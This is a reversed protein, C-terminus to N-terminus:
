ERGVVESGPKLSKMVEQVGAELQRDHGNLNDEPTNEVFIDPQVGLNELNTRADDALYVGVGPTRITSGDILSYSGTGIVAGMTPTGVVKGLGLARFGAPFMEANSASRWNQLVVKPGYYGAFPRTTPETGRPHWVQYPKQVLIALLEQEINGGGNWRQDIVLAEKHRYEALDKRFQALSPQDMAKIHLYGVRGHSLEDVKARRENVWRHYRLNSFASGAIPEYKATWSGSEEPKDNLTLEVKRNLRRGLFATVNDGVKVPKGDIALLYNGSAVKLWDKDAPGEEYVHTIKYRGSAEDAALDLGLHRTPAGSNERSGPAAAAGTHSANLEGIMENLLNILEPRDGVYAVMPKYKARMADWDKGHMAQDYFRYKMTRWADDFMEGWEAPKNIELTINFTVKKRSGGGGGTESGSPTPTSAAGGRGGGGAMAARLGAMGGGAGGGGGGLSVSTSYVGDGEQYFLTRGDKTLTLGSFGGGGGGGGGRRGRPPAEEESTSPAPTGAVLRNMRKGDDGITYIASSGGGGGAGRGGGGGFGGGGETGVFILNKGDHAPIYNRVSGMRTVQRTRRKLGDWDIKPEKPPTNRSAMTPRRGEGPGAGEGPTEASNDATEATDEPDKTLKELPVCFIQSSPRTEGGPEGEMRVFYLKKADNSFHPNMESLSDFTVKKPEGGAAPVLYIDTSRSVDAQSFALWKGDPSWAPRGITGYKSSAIEKIEKGEATMTRLKGDSTTLAILKSDPSWLYSSKLADIETIQKPEGAGDVPTVYLEERGTKDSVFALMKGDPSYSVDQDRVAGDTVQRLEGGEETSATFVRGHVTFVVRKGNPAADYDDVTSNFDRFEVLNEQTEAAIDFHLPTVQQSAVDYKSVGFDREFLITSGDASISPFRVEGDTFSTAKVADGGSDPAFWLNTQSNEDRDSVFYVRGDHGWMPWSDMGNFTTLDQFKKTALDMVTVDTQYSGRYYKRWYSQGKRNIALKSGDPAYSGALGMDPGADVTAGGAVPVTYLKGMFDEGRQSSFLISKGDPTWGLVTDDASHLTLRRTPGGQVPMVYVDMGGERDSSFAITKGDPAFRPSVDRAKNATLRHIASGDERATWIDGLYSFTVMGEHYHPQRILKAERSWASASWGLSVSLGTLLALFRRSSILM